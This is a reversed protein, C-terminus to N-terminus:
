AQAQLYHDGVPLGNEILAEFYVNFGGEKSDDSKVVLRYLSEPQPDPHSVVSLVNTDTILLTHPPFTVMKAGIRTKRLASMVATRSPRDDGFVKELTVQRRSLGLHQMIDLHRRGMGSVIHLTYALEPVLHLFTKYVRSERVTVIDSAYTPTTVIYTELEDM